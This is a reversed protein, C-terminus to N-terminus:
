KLSICRKFDLVLDAFTAYTLTQVNQSLPTALLDLDTELVYVTTHQQIRADQVFLIADGMLIVADNANSMSAWQELCASTKGFESQILFLTHQSM